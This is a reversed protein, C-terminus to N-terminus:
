KHQHKYEKRYEMPSVGCYKKFTSTFTSSNAYGVKEGIDSISAEGKKLLEKAHSIRIKNLYEVFNTGVARKFFNSFYKPSTGTMEAMTELYLDEAYHLNIYQLIFEKGLKNQSEGSIKETAREVTMNLFNRVDEYNEANEYKEYFASEFKGIEASEYGSAALTNVISNFIQSVLQKFKVRSINNEINRDIVENVIKISDKRNGSLIHNSLMEVYESPFYQRNIYDIKEVDAVTEEPRISQFALCIRIDEFAKKCDQVDAYFRSLAATIAYNCRFAQRFDEAAARIDELIAERRENEKIGGLIIFLSDEMGIVVTENRYKKMIARLTNLIDEEVVFQAHEESGANNTMGGTEMRFAAAFFSESGFIAGFYKDIRDKLRKYANADRIMKFFLSRRMEDDVIDMRRKYFTNERQIHEISRYIDNYDMGPKNGNGAGLLGIIRKFPRYVLMSLFAALVVTLLVAAILVFRNFEVANVMGIYNEPIKNVYVFENYESKICFYEYGGKRVTMENGAEFYIGKLVDSDYEDDTSIIVNKDQDLVALSTGKMMNQQNVHELLKNIDIFVLVNLRFNEKNSGIIALLKRKIVSGEATTETYYTSPVLKMTHKTVAFNKWYEPAYQSSKYREEFTSRFNRTGESTIALDSYSFYVIFDQIYEQSILQKVNNVFLFTNNMNLSDHGSGDYLQYPLMNITYITNNVEKFCEDFSKIMSEVVLKNNENTQRYMAETSNRFIIYNSLFMVFAIVQMLLFIRLLAKNFIHRKLGFVRGILRDFPSIGSEPPRFCSLIIHACGRAESM